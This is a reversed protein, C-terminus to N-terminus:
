QAAPAPPTAAAAAAPDPAPSAAPAAAAAAAVIVPDFGAKAYDPKKKFEAIDTHAAFWERIDEMNKAVADEFNKQELQMQLKNDYM